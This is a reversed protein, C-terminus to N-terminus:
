NADDYDKCYLMCPNGYVEGTPGGSGTGTSTVGVVASSNTGYFWEIEVWHIQMQDYLATLETFSPIRYSYVTQQTAGNYWTINMVSPQFDIAFHDADQYAFTGSNYIRFPRPGTQIYINQLVDGSSM